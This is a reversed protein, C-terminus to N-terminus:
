SIKPQILSETPVPALFSPGQLMLTGARGPVAGRVVEHRPLNKEPLWEFYGTLSCLEYGQDRWGELLGDLIAVDGLGDSEAQLTFVHGNPPCMRTRDLLRNVVNSANAGDLGVVEDTTPLTTPLQPCAIVEAKQVSVFPHSGRSDSCYDFGLRQTLRMAHRNMRWGAAAHIKPDAGFIERFRECAQEMESLTWRYEEDDVSDQWKVHNFAHIAVEYGADRVTRMQDACQKGIDPGPLLTGYLLSRAGYRKLASTRRAQALAGRQFMRKLTRGSHDPGLSFAFTAQAQHRKLVDVIRPVGERTGRYSNVDVKLALHPVTM